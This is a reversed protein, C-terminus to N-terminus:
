VTAKHLAAYQRTGYSERTDSPIISWPANPGACSTIADNYAQQYSEEVHANPLLVIIKLWAVLVIVYQEYLTGRRTRMLPMHHRPEPLDAFKEM